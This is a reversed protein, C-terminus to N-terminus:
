YCHLTVCFHFVFISFQKYIFSLLHWTFTILKPVYNLTIHLKISFRIILIKLLVNKVSSPRTDILIGYRIVLNHSDIIKGYGSQKLNGSNGVVACRICDKPKNNLFPDSTVALKKVLALVDQYPEEKRLNQQFSSSFVHHTFMITKCLMMLTTFHLYTHSEFTHKNILKGWLPIM